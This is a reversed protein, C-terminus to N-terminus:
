QGEAGAPLLWVGEPQGAETFRCLVHEKLKTPSYLGLYQLSLPYRRHGRDILAALKIEEPHETETVKRLAQYMTRGSYMVDDVIVVRKGEVSVTPEASPEATKKRGKIDLPYALVPAQYIDSLSSALMCALAYGKDDVGFILVDRSGRAEEYIQYAMRTIFRNIRAPSM